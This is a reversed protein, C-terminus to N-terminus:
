TNPNGKDVAKKAEEQVKDVTDKYRGQTKDDLIDGAKDIAQRGCPAPWLSPPRLAPPRQYLVVWQLRALRDPHRRPPQDPGDDRILPDAPQLTLIARDSAPDGVRQRRCVAVHLMFSRCFASQLSTMAASESSRYLAAQDSCQPSM